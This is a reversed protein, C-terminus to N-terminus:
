WGPRCLPRRQRTSCSYSLGCHLHLLENAYNKTSGAQFLITILKIAERIRGIDGAKIASSLELYILMDRLFLAANTSATGNLQALNTTVLYQDILNNVKSTIDSCMADPDRSSLTELDDCELVIEWARLAMADFTHHLLEDTAHFDPKDLNVRKRGLMTANFALSGPTAVSGYHTRLITAAFLMQLHFLQMVPIAWELKHYTSVDDWRLRKLSRIRNVTLQDGALLMRRGNFWERPLKLVGEMITEIIQLNGNLTAQDIHMSPLPFTASKDLSLLQKIPVPASCQQFTQGNRRLVEILHFRFAKQLHANNEADMYLDALCLHRAPCPDSGEEVFEKSVIATATTGSDFSDQNYLGQNHKRFAMNINDYVIYWSEKKAVCKVTQRADKTLAKLGTMISQHSVSM